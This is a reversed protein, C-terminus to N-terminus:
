DSGIVTRQELDWARQGNQYAQITHNFLAEHQQACRSIFFEKVYTKNDAGMRKRLDSERCLRYCNSEFTEVDDYSVVFGTKENQLFDTQGGHDYCIIPLGCAMGELFVLGFGEHQSTSVYIDSLELLQYKELEDVFGMFYVADHVQQNRALSRLSEEDPGAGIVLLKVHSNKQRIRSLMCILQDIRKRPILRGVTVLLIDKDDLGFDARKAPVIDPPQIALPIRQGQIEPTYYRNMNDLTNTSQGVVMDAHRLLYRIATRFIPHRHPSLSKSPDFLDGGHLSIVHPIKAMKALIHGVPGTPLVFHTNIIDFTRKKLLRQGVHIGSPIFTLMSGFSAVSENNRFLTQSRIIEVGRERQYSPLGLGQSTLVTVEHTKALEQALLANIVGGGGGLPPYEYNCFLIRM